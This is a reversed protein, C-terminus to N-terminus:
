LICLLMVKCASNSPTVQHACRLLTWHQQGKKGEGKVHLDAALLWKGTIVVTSRDDRDDNVYDLVNNDDGLVYLPGDAGGQWNYLDTLTFCGGHAATVDYREM